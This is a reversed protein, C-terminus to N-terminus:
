GKVGKFFTLKMSGRKAVGDPVERWRGRMQPYSTSGKIWEGTHFSIPSVLKTGNNEGNIKKAV